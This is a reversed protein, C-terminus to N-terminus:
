TRQRFRRDFATVNALRDESRNEHDRQIIDPLTQIWPIRHSACRNDVIEIGRRNVIVYAYLADTPCQSCLSIVLTLSADLEYLVAPNPKRFLQQATM